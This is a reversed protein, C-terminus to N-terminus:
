GAAKEINEYIDESLGDLDPSEINGKGLPSTWNSAKYADYDGFVNLGSLKSRAGWYQQRKGIRQDPKTIDVENELYNQYHPVSASQAANNIGVYKNVFNAAKGSMQNNSNGPAEAGAEPNPTDANNGPNTQGGTDGGGDTEGRRAARKEKIKRNLFKQAKVGFVEGNESDLSKGYQRIEKLGFGGKRMLGKVDAKSLRAEGKGYTAEEGDEGPQYKKGLTGGAGTQRLNFDELNDVKYTDNIGKKLNGDALAEGAMRKAKNRQRNEGKSIGGENYKSPDSEHESDNAVPGQGQGKEKDKNYIDLSM